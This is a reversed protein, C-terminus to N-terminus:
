GLDLVAAVAAEILSLEAASLHGVVEGLREGSVTAIQECLVRTAEGEVIIEPRFPAPRAATSTPVVVVTSLVELADNQLVVAFRAGRQQHGRARRPAPLRV